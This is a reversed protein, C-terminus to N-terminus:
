RAGPAARLPPPGGNAFFRRVQEAQVILYRPMVRNMLWTPFRGGQNERDLYVLESRAGDDLTRCLAAGWWDIRECGPEPPLADVSRFSALKLGPAVDRLVEISCLDRPAVGPVGPEFRQYLIRAHPALTEVVRGGVFERTWENHYELIQHVFGEFVVDAPAGVTPLRWRFLDNPDDPMPRRWLGIDGPAKLTRWGDMETLLAHDRTLWAEAREAWEKSSEM